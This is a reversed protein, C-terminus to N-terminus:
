DTSPTESMETRADTLLRKAKQRRVFRAKFQIHAQQKAYPSLNKCSKNKRHFRPFLSGHHPYLHLYEELLVPDNNLAYSKTPSTRVYLNRETNYLTSERWNIGLEGNPTINIDVNQPINWGRIPAGYIDKYKNFPHIYQGSPAECFHKHLESRRYTGVLTHTYDNPDTCSSYFKPLPDHPNISSPSLILVATSIQSVESKNLPRPMLPIYEIQCNPNPNMLREVMHDRKRKAEFKTNTSHKDPIIGIYSVTKQQKAIPIDESPQLSVDCIPQERISQPKNSSLNPMTETSGDEITQWMDRIYELFPIRKLRLAQPRSQLSRAIKAPIPTMWSQYYKSVGPTQILVPRTLFIVERGAVTDVGTLGSRTWHTRLYWYVTLITSVIDPIAPKVMWPRIDDLWSTVEEVSSLM